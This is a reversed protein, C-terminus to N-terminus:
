SSVSALINIGDFWTTAENKADSSWGANLVPRIKATNEPILIICSFEHWELPGNIGSPCQVLQRWVRSTENFGELAVHSQTAWKNLKMHTVLQYQSKPKVDIEQGHISSWTNNTNNTTSLAFSVYDNWGDTFKITCSFYNKCSNVPDNWFSPLATTENFFTFNPNIMLDFRTQNASAINQSSTTATSNVSTQPYGSGMSVINMPIILAILYCLFMVEVSVM